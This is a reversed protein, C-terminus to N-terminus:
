ENKGIKVSYINIGKKFINRHILNNVRIDNRTNYIHYLFYLGSWM